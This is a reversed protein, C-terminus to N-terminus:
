EPLARPEMMHTAGNLTQLGGMRVTIRHSQGDDRLPVAHTALRQGDMEVWAVGSEVRDPNEVSVIYESSKWKYRLGFREWSTPVSPDIVFESVRMKFGLVEEIWARYMWSASGTYWTWGGRGVQNELNYIDACVVYPEVKYTAVDEPVRAHEVPNLMTLLDVGKQGHGARAYSMAAWIAAHTYQGGNERVGPLYGKIYGPDTTTKDFAPNFLLIIKEDRKVLHEDMSALAIERRAPDGADSLVSWAQPLADIKAEDSTHSGLPTGDDFFARLYWQGDWASQEVAAAYDVAMQRYQASLEKEGKLDCIGAFENLVDIAFWALWVSEGKGEIGVRNMGDNWDGAGILPLDHPGKTCGKAIARKCHEFLTASETSPEPPLYTEHEHPELLRGGLFPTIEDLIADDGTARIYHSTVYPLFLLDDSIRTRVGAGGPPHWWHQVDGEPFQHQSARIIQERTVHPAAYVMAMVDQLQDRFGYAGGSQYFASRGWIRCSLTQYSLWRNCMMDVSLVPTEIQLTGLMADWWDRTAELYKRPAHPRRLREVWAKAADVNECQGLLFVIETEEGPELTALVQLAGCADLGAGVRESLARRKLGDPSIPSGNRGLFATRDGTFTRVTQVSALFAVRAPFDPHYANRATLVQREADWDTVVHPQTEERTTGLIWEAYATVSLRRRRSSANRLKLISVRLPPFEDENAVGHDRVGCPVFHTLEQEIAHSNHEFLSYGQGHRTRYPDDERIPLPTPTWVVGSEEDRIYIADGSTDAVPDNSWPTLRNSQSNGSWSFGQGSETVLMGFDPNAIVNSWPAPTSKREAGKGDLFIAYERGDLTFGGLGNFYPLEMFPLDRSPEEPRLTFQLRPALAPTAPVNALQMGIPGRAAVLVVRAVSFLLSLDEPPMTDATRLFIGGPQNLGVHQAMSLSLNSLQETLTQNYGGAQENLIVLDCKFGRIHWFTHAQLAQRVVALDRADDIAVVIIPLDGSIGYAWLGSQGKWNERIRKAPARLAPHPFMMYSALHQFRQADEPQIRLHHLELQAHTWAAEFARKVADGEGERLRVVTSLVDERTDGATTIFSVQTRGGPAVRVRKRLSFCPDLVAGTSGGLVQGLAQPNEASRSRGLFRARDTEFHFSDECGGFEQACVVAHAAWIPKEKNSRPRRWALITEVEPEAETQVFLKAFAPHARDASHPALAVEAFSTLEIEKEQASHNVLTVRRIEAPSDPAVVVELITEIDGDRRQFEAKDGTFLVSQSKPARRLPQHTASWVSNSGVDKLYIWQGWSDRTSDARFRTIEIDNWRSTGGGSNTLALSYAGNSLLHLRPVSTNPTTLRDVVEGGPLAAPNLRAPPREPLVERLVSPAVPIREHLLPEAAQVYPDSHFRNQIAGNHLVNDLALLAMGQHHVMFCRVIVGRGKSDNTSTDEDRLRQRSYDIAEYFGYDGRMGVEILRRLNAMARQPELMLALVSAYPAVVLDDELGRKLGLGPVGFAHYQYTKNADLASHASESIGWPVGRERGYDAQCLVATRCASELMSNSFPKMLLLPMMYEFMTGSWSQLAARGYCLGYRRGLSVWHDLPVEGRAICVFSAVRCESAILDYYSNDRRMQEINFGIAFLDREEDYLFRMDTEDALVQMRQTLRLAQARMEGAFWRARGFERDLRHLWDLTAPSLYTRERLDLLANMAPAHGVALNELTPIHEMAEDRRRIVEDDPRYSQPDPMQRLLDAWSLYRQAQQTWYSVQAEMQAAWYAAPRAAFRPDSTAAEMNAVDRRRVLSTSPPIAGVLQALLQVPEAVAHIRDIIESPTRLPDGLLHELTGMIERMEPAAQGDLSEQLLGLVDELGRLASEDMLPDALVQQLGQSMTWLSGLWNGSDVASVYRPSLPRTTQVDYWNFFHGRFRELRELSDLTQRTRAIVEDHPIYGFDHAALLSLLWLGINTPSTRQAIEVNLSEQYNDPPLWNTQPGVFDDFYRWTQRSLRRLLMQDDASLESSAPEERGGSLWKVLLPAAAWALLWPAALPLSSPRLRTILAANLVAWLSSGALRTLFASERAGADRYNDRATQWELLDRRSVYKRWLTRGIADLAIVSTHPLLAAQMAARVLANKMEGLVVRPGGTRTPLWSVLGMLAPALLGAGVLVQAGRAASPSLLWSASLLACSQFPVKSRRLNDGVKWRNLLSLPNPERGGPAKLSPVRPLIWNMIQWDGRLWRHNRRAYSLYNPPFDDFLEIDSALGVRVHGGELLDHSLLTAPPFRGALVQHFAQVDYIGKGIYSGEGFLDQYVDSIAHTYPDSGVADTFLRSFRTETASPLSTTVRPQIVTYGRKVLASSIGDGLADQGNNIVPRNLPHALTEVLRRATDHPLQTDADLTIVFRVGELSDGNGAMVHLVDPAGPSHGCLLANMEDLKGRKREHGMWKGESESWRRERGFLLFRDGRREQGDASVWVVSGHSENLADIAQRAVELLRADEPMARSPADAFDSVLAFRLNPDPNALYRVELKGVEDRVAEEDSLMMPIAVLTRWEDPVGSEFEMKPLARPPLVKTVGYNVLQLALESAPGLALVQLPLPLAGGARRAVSQSLCLAGATTTVLSGFYFANPSDLIARRVGDRWEPRYEAERELAKVGEDILHFGIHSEVLASPASTSADISTSASAQVARRAVDVEVPALDLKEKESLGSGRAIREVEHRYRDRTAFDMHAYVGAPDESLAHHVHSLGEFTERWDIQGLLRLSGIIQAVAIQDAAERRSERALIESMTAGLKREIWARVPVLAAEVDYLGSVLRDAFHDDLHPQENSLDALLPLMHDPDSHASALLRNAWFDARERDRQRRDTQQTLRRLSEVLAVRLLLPLAWLEGMTLPSVSQYAGLYEHLNAEDLRGGTRQVLDRAIAYARTVGRVQHSYGLPVSKKTDSSQDEPPVLVPLKAYFAGSLNQRVDAIQRQIIYSNDLLWEASLSIPQELRAAEALSLCVTNIVQENSRLRRLLGRARGQGLRARHLRATAQAHERLEEGLIPAPRDDRPPLPQTDASFPAKSSGRARIRRLLAGEDRLHPRVVFTVPVAEDDERLIALADEIRASPAQLLLMSEGKVSWRKYLQLSTDDVGLNVVRGGVRGAAAGLVSGASITLGRVVQLAPTPLSPALARLSLSAIGSLAAGVAAGSLTATTDSLDRTEVEVGGDVRKILAVRKFGRSRLRELAQAGATEDRFFGLVLGTKSIM